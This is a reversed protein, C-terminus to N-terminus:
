VVGPPGAGWKWQSGGWGCFFTVSQGWPGSWACRLLRGLPHPSDPARPTLVLPPRVDALGVPPPWSTKGIDLPTTNM